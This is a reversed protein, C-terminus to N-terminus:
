VNVHGSPPDRRELMPKVISRGGVQRLGPCNPRAELLQNLMRFWEDAPRFGRRFLQLLAVSLKSLEGGCDLIHHAVQAMQKIPGM